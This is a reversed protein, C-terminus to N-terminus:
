HPKRGFISFLTSTHSKVNVQKKAYDGPKIGARLPRFQREFFRTFAKHSYTQGRISQWAHLLAERDPKEMGYVYLDGWRFEGRGDRDGEDLVMELAVERAEEDIETNPISTFNIYGQSLYLERLADLGAAIKARSFIEGPQIPMVTRLQAQSFVTAGKWHIGRLRYQTGAEIEFSLDIWPGTADSGSRTIPDSVKVKFYGKDQYARRVLEAGELSADYPGEFEGIARRIRRAIQAQEEWPLPTATEFFIRRIRPSIYSPRPQDRNAQASSAVPVCLVLL